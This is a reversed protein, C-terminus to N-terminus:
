SYIFDSGGFLAKLAAGAGLAYATLAGYISLANALFMIIKGNKGLYREALGSLQHKERTRLLIEGLYLNILTMLAAVFLIVVLGTVLGAKQVVYPMGFIGAGVTISILAWIPLVLDKKM